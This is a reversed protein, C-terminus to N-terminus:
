KTIKDLRLTWGAEAAELVYELQRVAGSPRANPDGERYIRFRRVLRGNAVAFTDHGMYGKLEASDPSSALLHIPSMSRGRNVAYAVLSGYSGSGASNVYVYLEPYGNGDLDAIEAGTVTGDVAVQVKANDLELGRPAILLTNESSDNKSSVHFGVGRMELNRSFSPPGAKGPMVPFFVIPILASVLYGLRRTKPKSIRSSLAPLV